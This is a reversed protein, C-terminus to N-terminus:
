SVQPIIVFELKMTADENYVIKLPEKSQILLFKETWRSNHHRRSVYVKFCDIAQVIEYRNIRGNDKILYATMEDDAIKVQM